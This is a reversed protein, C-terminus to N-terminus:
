FGSYPPFELAIEIVRLTKEADQLADLWISGPWQRLLVMQRKAYQRSLKQTESVADELDRKGRVVDLMAAYGIAKMAPWDERLGSALLSRVEEVFGNRVMEIVRRDIRRYLEDRPATLVFRHAPFPRRELRGDAHLQSLPSGTSEHVELARVVRLRDNPHVRRSTESDVSALRERLAAGGDADWEAELRRRVEPSRRAGPTEFLGQTLVKFYLGTGGAVIATKGRQHIDAICDLTARRWDAANWAHDPAICGVLHCVTGRLEDVTPQATGVTFGRYVQMSDASVIEGSLRRALEVALATKGTATPGALLITRPPPLISM